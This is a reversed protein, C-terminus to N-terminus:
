SHGNGALRARAPQVEGISRESLEHAAFEQHMDDIVTGVDDATLSHKEDMCGLLLLRNCLVNIRRPIGGTQAFIQVFAPDDISPDGAWGVLRMRHVIYAKTEAADM